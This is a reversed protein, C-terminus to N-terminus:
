PTAEDRVGKLPARETAHYDLKVSLIRANAYDQIFLRKDTHVAVFCPYMLGVEDGGLPVKSEPGASDENGYRGVRLILNGNTDVVAVSFRLPEPAFSRGFYDLTFRAHWCACAPVWNANFSAFGVGGFYWEAGEVWYRDGAAYLDAPRRPAEDPPLPVPAKPSSTIFKGRRPAFKILTSSFRNFYPEGDLMRAPTAMVYLNNDRDLGIGDVQPMGPLADEFAIRGHPDWVHACASIPSEERGPYLRAQYEKSLYVQRHSTWADTARRHDSTRYACSVALNGNPSLFLGGQHFCVPSRSPMVLAAATRAFRGGWIGVQALDQGYDFPVEELGPFTYRVVVDTQRLYALGKSDFAMDEAGFPLTVTRVKGTEPDLEVLSQFNKALTGVEGEGVYCLGTAPNVYLRQMQHYGPWSARVIDQEVEKGFDRLHTLKGDPEIRYMQIGSVSWPSSILNEAPYGTIWEKVSVGHDHVNRVMWLTPPDSWSDLAVRFQLGAGWGDYPQYANVLPLPGTQLVRPDDFTGFRTFIPPIPGAERDTGRSLFRWSFVYIEQTRRHVAVEAPKAVPISKLLRGDPAFVQVRDNEHDAVYVRGQADVDLAAPLRLVKAEEPTLDRDRKGSGAFLTLEGDTEFPVRYVGHLWERHSAYTTAKWTYGTLYLFKGDPSFAASRPVVRGSTVGADEKPADFAERGDNVQACPFSTNAGQLPLVDGAVSRAGGGDTGLRNLRICALAVRDKHVAMASAAFGTMSGTWRPAGSEGSTLFTQQYYAPKFPFEGGEPFQKWTLGKVDKIKDAPFPYVTRLYDGAHSFLRLHDVGSGDFVYVGEPTPVILAKSTVRKKPNWYMVRELAPKLGLSVRVTLADKHDLYVGQDDKGDWVLMQRKSNWLFPEPATEGLVGSTLHRVIKGAADELVVTADCFATTEFTITTKDGARTLRPKEVFGFVQERKPQFEDYRDLKVVTFAGSQASAVRFGRPRLIRTLVRGAEQDKAQLAAPERGTLLDSPADIRVGIKGGVDALVDVLSTNHYDVTIRKFLPSGPQAVAASLGAALAGLWVCCQLCPGKVRRM